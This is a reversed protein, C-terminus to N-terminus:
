QPQGPRIPVPIAFCFLFRVQMLQQLLHCAQNPRHSPNVHQKGTRNPLFSGHTQTLCTARTLNLYLLSDACPTAFYCAPERDPPTTIFIGYHAQFYCFTCGSSMSELVTLEVAMKIYIHNIVKSTWKQPGGISMPACSGNVQIALWCPFDTAKIPLWYSSGCM